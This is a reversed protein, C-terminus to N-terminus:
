SMSFAFGLRAASELYSSSIPASCALLPNEIRATTAIKSASDQRSEPMEM